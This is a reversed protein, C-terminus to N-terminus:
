DTYIAITGGTKRGEDALILRGDPLLSIGETQPHLDEPLRGAAIVNGKRTIELIFQDQASVLILHGTTEDVQIGSAHFRKEGIANKMAKKSVSIPKDRLTQGEVSWRFILLGADFQNSWTKKCAILLDRSRDDYDVGEVECHKGAGTEIIQVDRMDAGVPNPIAFLVGESTILYIVENGVAIAEFDGRLSAAGDKLTYFPEVTEAELDIQYIIGVEDDHALLTTANLFALGSVEELQLPLSFFHDPDSFDISCIKCVPPQGMGLLGFVSVAIAVISYHVKLRNM